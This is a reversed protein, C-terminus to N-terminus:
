MFFLSRIRAVRRSITGAGLKEIRTLQNQGYGRGLLLVLHTQQGSFLHWPIDMPMDIPMPAPLDPVKVDGASHVVQVYQRPLRKGDRKPRIVNIGSCKCYSRFVYDYLRPKLYTLLNGKDADWNPLLRRAAIYAENLLEDAEWLPFLSM